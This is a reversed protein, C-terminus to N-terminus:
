VQRAQALSHPLSHTLSYTLLLSHTLSHTLLLSYTLTLSYWARPFNLRIAEKIKDREQMVNENKLRDADLVVVPELKRALDSLQQKWIRYVFVMMEELSVSKSGDVDM